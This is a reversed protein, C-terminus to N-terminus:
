QDEETKEGRAEPPRPVSVCLRSHPSGSFSQYTGALHRPEEGVPLVLGSFLPPDSGRWHRLFRSLAIHSLLLRAMRYPHCRGSGAGGTATGIRGWLSSCWSRHHPIWSARLAGLSRVPWYRRVM